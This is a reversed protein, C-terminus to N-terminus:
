SSLDSRGAGSACHPPGRSSRGERKSLSQASKHSEAMGRIVILEEEVVRDYLQRERLTRFMNYMHMSQGSVNNTVNLMGGRSSLSKQEMRDIILPIFYIYIYIENFRNDTEKIAVKIAKV